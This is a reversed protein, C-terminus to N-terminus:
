GVVLRQPGIVSKARASSYGVDINGLDVSHEYRRLLSVAVVMSHAVDLYPVVLRKKSM